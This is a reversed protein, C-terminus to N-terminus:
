FFDVNISFYLLRERVPNNHLIDLFMVFMYFMLFVVFLKHYVVEFGFLCLCVKIYGTYYITLTLHIHNKQRVIICLKLMTQPSVIFFEFEISNVIVELLVAVGSTFM